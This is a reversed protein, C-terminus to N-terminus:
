RNRLVQYYHVYPTLPFSQEGCHDPQKLFHAVASVNAPFFLMVDDYIAQITSLLFTFSGLVIFFSAVILLLWYRRRSIDAGFHGRVVLLVLCLGACRWYLLTRVDCVRLYCVSVVRCNANCYMAHENM